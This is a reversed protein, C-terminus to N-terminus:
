DVTILSLIVIVFDFRSWNEHFYYRPGNGILKLTAELTFLIVFVNNAWGVIKKYSDSSRFYDMCLVISNLCIIVMIFYEFKNSQVIRFFVKRFKNTPPVPIVRTNVTVM